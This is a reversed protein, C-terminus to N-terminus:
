VLAPVTTRTFALHTSPANGTPVVENTGDITGYKNSSRICTSIETCDLCDIAHYVPMERM